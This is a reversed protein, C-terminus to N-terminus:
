ARWLSSIPLAWCRDGFPLTREGTYLVAGCAFDDGLRERLGALHRVDEARVTASAKVEIAAVRGDDAEVVLDVEASAARYHFVECPLSACQAARLVEMAVFNELAMGRIAPDALARRRGAHLLRLHVGSDVVYLKRRGRERSRLGRRWSPLSRLLYVSELAAVYSAATKADVGIADGLNAATYTGAAQAAAQRALRRLAAPDRVGQVDRVDRELVADVYGTLWADRRGGDRAVAEPLGGRVIRDLYAAYDLSAGDLMPVAGNLMADVLNVASGEIEAQRLPWLEILEIRGTLADHLRPATRLNVSGTLLFQGPAPDEDVLAKIELLVDPVRQVEDIFAPPRLGRVFARPDLAAAERTATDDFSLALAPFDREILGRILTTKGVQRAGAVGVVRTDSLATLVAPYRDRKYV